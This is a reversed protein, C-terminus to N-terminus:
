INGKMMGGQGLGFLDAQVNERILVPLVISHPIKFTAASCHLKEGWTKSGSVAMYLWGAEM